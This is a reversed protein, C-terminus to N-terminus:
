RPLEQNAECCALSRGSGLRCGHGGVRRGDIV